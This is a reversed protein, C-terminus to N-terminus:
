EPRDDDAEQLSRLWFDKNQYFAALAEM